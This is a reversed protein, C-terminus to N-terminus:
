SDLLDHILKLLDEEWLPKFHVRAGLTQLERALDEEVFYDGTIVAIPMQAYTVIERVRRLFEVGDAMPLHLDLLVAAPTVREVEQLGSEADLAVRVGYGNLRLIHKFTEVAGPDDEVILITAAQHARVGIALGQEKVAAHAGSAALRRSSGSM